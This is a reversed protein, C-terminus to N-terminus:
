TEVETGSLQALELLYYSSIQYYACLASVSGFALMLM